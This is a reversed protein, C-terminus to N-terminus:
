RLTFSFSGLDPVSDGVQLPPGEIRAIPERPSTDDNASTYNPGSDTGSDYPQLPVDIERWTGSECLNLDHVGVFWDPSPAIMSVVSVLPFAPTVDFDVSVNGPSTGIGGGDILTEAQEADIVAQIETRLKSKAGTEAMQEIGDTAIEGAGM